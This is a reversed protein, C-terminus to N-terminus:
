KDLVESCFKWEIGEPLQLISEFSEVLGNGCTNQVHGHGKICYLGNPVMENTSWNYTYSPLELHNVDQDRNLALWYGRDKLAKDTEITRQWHPACFGKVFNIKVGKEDELKKFMVETANLLRDVDERKMRLLEGQKHTFGHVAIEMWEYNNALIKAFDPFNLLSAFKGSQMDFPPMFLTVKFDPYHEKLKNFYPLNHNM